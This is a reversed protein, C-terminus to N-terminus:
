LQHPQQTAYRSPRKIIFVPNFNNQSITDTTPGIEIEYRMVFYKLKEITNTLGKFVHTKHTVNAFKLGNQYCM